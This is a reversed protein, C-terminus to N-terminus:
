WGDREKIVKKKSKISKQIRQERITNCIFALATALKPNLLANINCM